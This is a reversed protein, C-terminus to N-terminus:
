GPVTVEDWDEHLRYTHLCRAQGMPNQIGAHWRQSSQGGKGWGLDTGHTQAPLWRQLQEGAERQKTKSKTKLSVAQPKVGQCSHSVVSRVRLIEQALTGLTCAPWRGWKYLCKIYVRIYIHLYM